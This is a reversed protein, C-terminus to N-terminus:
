AIGVGSGRPSCRARQQEVGLVDDDVVRRRASATAVDNAIEDVGIGRRPAVESRPQIGFLQDVAVQQHPYGVCGDATEGVGARGIQEIADSTAQDARQGAALGVVPDARVAGEEQVVTVIDDAAFVPVITTAREREAPWVRQNRTHDAGGVAQDASSRAVVDAAAADDLEAAAVVAWEAAARDPDAALLPGIRFGRSGIGTGERNESGVGAQQGGAQGTHHRREVTQDTRM